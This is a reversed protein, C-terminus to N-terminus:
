LFSQSLWAVFWLLSQMVEKQSTIVRSLGDLIFHGALPPCGTQKELPLSLKRNADVDMDARPAM